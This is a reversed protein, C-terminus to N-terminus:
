RTGYDSWSPLGLRRAHWRYYSATGIGSVLTLCVTLLVVETNSWGFLLHCILWWLGGIPLGLFCGMVIMLPVFDMLLPPPVKLGLFMLFHFLPPMTKGPSDGRNQMEKIFQEIKDRYTIM